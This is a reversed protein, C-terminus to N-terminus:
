SKIQLIACSSLKIEMLWIRYHYKRILISIDALDAISVQLDTFERLMGLLWNM